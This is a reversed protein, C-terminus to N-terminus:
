EEENEEEEQRWEVLSDITGEFEGYLMSETNDLEEEALIKDVIDSMTSEVCDGNEYVGCFDMGPEEYSLIISVGENQALFAEMAEIPPAWASDFYGSIEAKDDWSEFSLGNTSVDWKTGWANVATDYEWEGIPVMAELLQNGNETAKNWLAELIDKPGTMSINNNCWNPM